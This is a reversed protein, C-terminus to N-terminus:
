QCQKKANYPSGVSFQRVVVFQEKSIDVLGEYSEMVVIYFYNYM